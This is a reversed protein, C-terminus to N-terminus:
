RVCEGIAGAERWQGGVALGGKGGEANRERREEAIEANVEGNREM